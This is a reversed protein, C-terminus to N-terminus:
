RDNDRDHAHEIFRKYIWGRGDHRRWVKGRVLQGSITRRPIIVSWRHWVQAWAPIGDQSGIQFQDNSVMIAMARLPAAAGVCLPSGQDCTTRM